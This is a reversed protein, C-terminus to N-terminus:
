QFTQLPTCSNGGNGVKMVPNAASFVAPAVNGNESLAAVGPVVHLALGLVAPNGASATFTNYLDLQAARAAVEAVTGTTDTLAKIGATTNARRTFANEVMIDYAGTTANALTPAAGNISAFQYLEGAKAPRDFGMLGIGYGGAPLVVSNAANLAVLAGSTVDIAQKGVANVMTGNQAATMCAALAGSSSNEVVVYSGPAVPTSTGLPLVADVTADAPSLQSTQCPFGFIANNIAAQTGSGPQRRCVVISTTGAAVTPDITNWDFVNAGSMLAAVQAKSLNLMAPTANSTVIVGMPQGLATTTVLNALQTATLATATQTRTTLATAANITLNIGTLLAPEVDSVGADPIATTITGPCTQVVQGSISDIVAPVSAVCTTLNLRTVPTALAVPNVGKISGGAGTNYILVNKGALSAPIVIGASTTGSKMTGFYARYSGGNPVTPTTTASDFYVGETGAVFLDNIIQGTANFLASSGSMFLQVDPVTTIPLAQAQTACALACAVVLSKLKM